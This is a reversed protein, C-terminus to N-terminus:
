EQMLGFINDKLFIFQKKHLQTHEYKAQWTQQLMHGPIM